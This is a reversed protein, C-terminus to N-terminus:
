FIAELVGCIVALWFLGVAFIEMTDESYDDPMQGIRIM